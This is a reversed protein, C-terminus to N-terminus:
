KAAEVIELRGVAFQRYIDSLDLPLNMMRLAEGKGYGMDYANRQTKGTYLHRKRKGEYARKAGAVYAIHMEIFVRDKEAQTLKNAM